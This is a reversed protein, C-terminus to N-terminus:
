KRVAFNDTDLWKLIAPMFVPKKVIVESLRDSLEDEELPEDGDCLVSNLIDLTLAILDLEEESELVEMYTNMGVTAVLLRSSQFSPIFL